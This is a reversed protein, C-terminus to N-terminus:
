HIALTGLATSINGFIQVAQTPRVFTVYSLCVVSSLCVSPRYCIAFTFTLERESFVSKSLLYPRHLLGHLCNHLVPLFLTISLHAVNTLYTSVSLGVTKTEAKTYACCNIGDCSKALIDSRVHIGDGLGDTFFRHIRAVVWPPHV